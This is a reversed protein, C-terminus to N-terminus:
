ESQAVTPTSVQALSAAQRSLECLIGCQAAKGPTRCRQRIDLLETKLAILEEIRQSVQEVQQDLLQNVQECGELDTDRYRLLVRLEGLSMGLKRGHRIFLLRELHAEDYIRYNNPSRAPEPLLNEREYFRITETATDSRKALEGIRM